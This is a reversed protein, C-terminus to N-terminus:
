LTVEEPVSKQSPTPPKTKEKKAENETSEKDINLDLSEVKEEVEVKETAEESAGDDESTGAGDEEPILVPANSVSGPPLNGSWRAWDSSREEGKVGEDENNKDDDDGDGDGDDDDDDKTEEEETRGTIPTVPNASLDDGLDGGGLVAESVASQKVVIQHNLNVCHQFCSNWVTQETGTDTAFHWVRNNTHVIMTFDTPSEVANNEVISVSLIDKLNIQGKLNKKKEEGEYYKLMKTQTNLSFWRRKWPSTMFKPLLSQIKRMKEKEPKDSDNASPKKKWM